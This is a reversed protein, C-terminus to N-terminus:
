GAVVRTAEDRGKDREMRYVTDAGESIRDEHTIIFVQQAFSGIRDRLVASLHNISNSDLNHTPEDLILWSLNPIFAHSFAIRLALCAISREGGSAVGEVPIWGDSGRLELVYDDDVALRVGTYDGYPYLEGWVQEMIRNVTKVFEQRLGEQTAKLVSVFKKMDDMVREDEGTERRYRDLTEKRRRLEALTEEKDVKREELSSIRTFIGKEKGVIEQLSERLRNMDKKSFERDLEEKTKELERKQEEKEERKRKLEDIEQAKELRTTMREIKLEMDRIDRELREREAKVSELGVATESASKRLGSEESRRKELLEKKKDESVESECVPCKAEVTELERIGEVVMRIRENFSALQERGSDFSNVIGKLDGKKEDVEAKLGGIEKELGEPNEKNSRVLTEEIEGLGARLGELMKSIEEVEEQKSELGSLRQSVEKKEEKVKRLSEELSGLEAGIKGLENETEKVRKGFDERELEQLIRMKEGRREAIKNGISVAGDKARGFRHVKLLKDIHEMRQGKPIRLFYDMFNQESYVARSFLEYDIQLAKEIESTVNKANVDLLEGNKRLEAKTTGKELEITRLITYKEGGVELDLEVEAQRKRAPRKMILDDLGLRRSKLGSFTGFLAFSIAQMISTKGSGVIGVLVNVGQSFRLESDIHSKWNKLRLRTIM